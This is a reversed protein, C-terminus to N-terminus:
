SYRRLNIPSHMCFSNSKEDYIMFFFWFFFFTGFLELLLLLSHQETSPVSSAWFKVFQFSLFITILDISDGANPSQVMNGVLFDICVCIVQLQDYSNTFFVEWITLSFWIRWKPWEFEELHPRRCRQSHEHRRAM